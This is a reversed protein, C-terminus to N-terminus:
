RPDLFLYDDSRHSGVNLPEYTSSTGYPFEDTSLLVTLLPLSFSPPRM